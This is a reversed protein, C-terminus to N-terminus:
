AVREKLAEYYKETYWQAKDWNKSDREVGALYALRASKSAQFNSFRFKEALLHRIDEESPKTRWLNVEINAVLEPELALGLNKRILEYLEKLAKKADDWEEQRGDYLAKAMHKGATVALEKSLGYQEKMYAALMDRLREGHSDADLAKRWDLELRAVVKPNFKLHEMADNGGFRRRRRSYDLIAERMKEPGFDPFHDLEWYMEAYDSQWQLIGSTRQEGSTRIILDPYPYPQGASDMYTNVLDRDVDEPNVKDALMRKIARMIEDPGNYDLAVNFIHKTNKETEQEIEKIKNMLYAPLRDKRGLHVIKVGEKHFERYYRDLYDVIGRMLFEVEPKPRDLWNETSLGWATVTHIGWGRAARALNVMNEMGAAHGESASKGAARAWRRDGDPIIVVHDPIKTGEPLALNTKQRM